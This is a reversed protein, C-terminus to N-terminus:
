VKLNSIRQPNLAEAMRRTYINDKSPEQDMMEVEQDIINELNM